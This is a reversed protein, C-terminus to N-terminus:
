KGTPASAPTPVAVAQGGGEQYVGVTDVGSGTFDGAFPKDGANGLTFVKDTADLVHNNNSDLIFTGNRYVGLKSVGDGTWDGVVPLDGPQGFEVVLDGQSWRGDGDMDLFWTGNRFIGVAYVEDGNWDGTVPKDEETGFRFVHDILDSRLKGASTRKMTRFGITADEPNPPMNKHGHRLPNSADPLGPDTTLARPDGFWAPGYIGIDTKGDGDWDGSVPKDGEQGLKAWLDSEDWRGDGDLDLFWLGNIFVGIKTVGSGNWDGTVPTAGNIGFQYKKVPMGNADAIIWTGTQNIDAGTWTEPDFLQAQSNAAFESGNQLKRPQGGNIISLHWTYGAPGGYGGMLTGPMVIPPLTYGVGYQLPDPASLMHPPPTPPTPPDPYKPSDPPTETVKVVSFNYHTAADGSNLAIKVIASGQTDVALTSLTMTDITAYRNVVLGGQSGATDVAPIYGTPQKMVISYDGPALGTFEYYGQANTTTTIPNGYSDSMPYGSGDCLQVVIGGLRTDDSTLKGDRVSPIYPVPDGKKVTIVPGDQFVYGSIKAGLIEFFDYHTANVGSALTAEIIRNVGDLAGGASGVIDGGEFYGTPQIEEVGYTAPPLDTFFYEGNQDTETSAIRTGSQDLLFITVGSLLQEGSDYAGNNNMDVFVTGSISAPLIEGFDYNIAKVEAELPIVSILDADPNSVKGGESGASDKGDLYGGPQYEQLSYTGPTVNNFEYYGYFDTIATLGTPNGESDLLEITVGSIGTEGVDFIGNDNADHYVYGSISAPLLEGFNYDTGNVGGGLTITSILDGPNHAVGGESGATDLGDIYGDPQTERVGYTGPQLNDFKYFGNEDTTTTLGTPNGASDLLEVTVGSIGTEDSKFIGDNNPDHYVYGSVSAPQTEGFDNDISDDGGDLSISSLINENTAIGHTIGGVTGPQSGVSLYGNPQDEVIRYTDPLVDSFSYYGNADTTATKGTSIYGGDVMSYLTLTVGAIPPEGSNRSNDLNSDEYVHGSITIPLPSQRLPFIAGATYVPGPEADAPMYQSPPNYSDNPLNLGTGSLKNDYADYFIDTGSTESYHPATFIGTLISGEFENGEAVANQGLFGQEDVDISFVLKEGPDFGSFHLVLSTGGDAVQATVSDIGTKSVITFPSSSFTGIGGAATDFLCDGITLGDGLKDTDIKLETLQTGAAGGNFTIEFLDGVQDQGNADEFYVAGLQIQPATVSLLQRSEMQEIRCKHWRGPNTNHKSSRIPTSKYLRKFANILLSM